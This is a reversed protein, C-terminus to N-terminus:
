LEHRLEGVLSSYILLLKKGINDVDREEAVLWGSATTDKLEKSTIGTILDYFAENTQGKYCNVGQKLWDEYVPIDRVVVPRKTALAELMVIGETEEYTPMFFVDAASYAGVLDKLYGPFHANAPAKVIAIRIDATMLKPHTYGCWVFQHDPMKKALEIFDHIGKRKIQLGVSLVIKDESTFGYIKRFNAARDASYSFKELNIGNSVAIIERDLDYSELLRKSYPTPTVIVDGQRYVFKLWKKFIHSVANAFFFSDRFDEETSHAHIVVKKGRLRAMNAKMVSLPGITNIHVVDYHFHSGNIQCPVHNVTLAQEQHRVAKGVGSKAIFRLGESYLLVRM